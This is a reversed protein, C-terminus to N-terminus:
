FNLRCGHQVVLEVQLTPLLVVTVVYIIHKAGYMQYSNM